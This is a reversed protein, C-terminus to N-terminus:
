GRGAPLIGVRCNKTKPDGTKAQSRGGVGVRCAPHRGWLKGFGHTLQRPQPASLGVLCTPGPGAIPLDALYTKLEAFEREEQETRPDKARLVRFRQKREEVELSEDTALGFAYTTLLQSVLLSRPNGPFRNVSIAKGERTLHHLCGPNAQQATMPSHTTVVLQFNPLRTGLFDVLRRQWRPHLHLDVEDILLVGRTELPTEYDPGAETIHYLLDGVWACVAQYGDSLMQLCVVGDDTEFLLEGRDKDIQKFQIGPLFDDLVRRVMGLGLGQTRYDLNMVWSELPNLDAAPEFLTAVRRARDAVYASNRPRVRKSDSLRRSAGYGVIFYNSRAESLQADFERLAERNNVLVDSRTEGRSLEMLIQVQKGNAAIVDAEIQCRKCGARIWEDPEGMLDPLADSGGTVLAIAKLLTSKGTGNEGLLVTWKRLGDGEDDLSLEVDRFCRVNNLRLRQLFM